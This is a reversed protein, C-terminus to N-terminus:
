FHYSLHWEALRIADRGLTRKGGLASVLPKPGREVWIAFRSRRKTRCLGDAAMRRARAELSVSDARAAAPIPPFRAYTTRNTKGAAIM